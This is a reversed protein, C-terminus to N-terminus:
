PRSRRSGRHISHGIAVLGAGAAVAQLYDGFTTGHWETVAAIFGGVVIIAFLAPGLVLTLREVGDARDVEPGPDKLAGREESSPDDNMHDDGWHWRRNDRSCM